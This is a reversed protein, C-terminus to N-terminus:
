SASPAAPDRLANEKRNRHPSRMWSGIAGHGSSDSLMPHAKAHKDLEKATLDDGTPVVYAVRCQGGSKPASRHDGPQHAFTAGYRPRSGHCAPANSCAAALVHRDKPHNTMGEILSEHGEVSADPFSRTM